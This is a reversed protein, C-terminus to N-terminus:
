GTSSRVLRTRSLKDHWTLRDKNTLASLFGLGLCLWSLGAFVFRKLADLASLDTDTSAISKVVKIKWARMGLTQGGRTWSIGFYFYACVLLYGFYFPNEAAIAQGQLAIVIPLTCFFLLALVAFADYIIAAIRRALSVTIAANENRMKMTGADTSQNTDPHGHNKM